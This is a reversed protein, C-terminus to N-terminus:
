LQRTWTCFFRSVHASSEVVVASVGLDDNSLFAEHGSTAADSQEADRIFVQFPFNSSCSSLSRCYYYYYYYYCDKNMRVSLPPMPTVSYLKLM